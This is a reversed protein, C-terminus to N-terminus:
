LRRGQVRGLRRNAILTRFPKLSRPSSIFPFDWEHLRSKGLFGNGGVVLLRPVTTSVSAMIIPQIRHISPSKMTLLEPHFHLTM